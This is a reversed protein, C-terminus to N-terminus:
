SVSPAPQPSPAPPAVPASKGNKSAPRNFREFLTTYLQPAGNDSAARAARKLVALDADWTPGIADRTQRADRAAAELKAIPLLAHEVALAAKDLDQAAKLTAKTVQKNRQIAAVILHITKAEDAAPLRVLAAPSPGGFAAFPKARSQGDTVLARALVEVAEDQVTDYEHLRDLATRLQADAADVKAQTTEYARHAREFAALPEKVSRTDVARAAALISAGAMLRTGASKGIQMTAM